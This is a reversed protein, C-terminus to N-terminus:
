RSSRMLLYGCIAVFILIGGYESPSMNEWFDSLYRSYARSYYRYTESM